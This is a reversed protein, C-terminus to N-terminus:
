EWWTLLYIEKSLKVISSLQVDKKKGLLKKGLNFHTGDITLAKYADLAREPETKFESKMFDETLNNIWSYITKPPILVRCYEALFDAIKNGSLNKRFHMSLTTQIIRKSYEFKKPYDPHEPTYVMGCDECKFLVVELEVIVETNLNGIEPIRRKRSSRKSIKESGCFPCAEPAYKDASIKVVEKKVHNNFDM